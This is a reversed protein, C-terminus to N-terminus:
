AQQSQGDRHSWLEAQDGLRIVTAVEWSTKNHKLIAVDGATYHIHPEVPNTNLLARLKDEDIDSKALTLHPKYFEKVKHDGYKAILDRKRKPMRTTFKHKFRHEKHIAVVDILADHVTRIYESQVPYHLVRAGFHHLNELEISFPKLNEATAQLDKILDDYHKTLFPPVLTVHPPLHLAKTSDLLASYQEMRERLESYVPEPPILAIFVLDM